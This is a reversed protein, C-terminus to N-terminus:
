LYREQLIKKHHNVHGVIIFGFGLVYNPNGSAIGGSNIQEETFSSFLLDTSRRVVSFEEILENWDRHAAASNDAYLNEDFGPLPQPEKRSFCLSRYAFVRETDIIHQLVEKVTWKGEDYRYDIKNEPIKKLFSIFDEAQKRMAPLLDDEEVQSIYREFYPAVRSLDPRPM